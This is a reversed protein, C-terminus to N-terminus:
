VITWTETGPVEGYPSIVIANFSTSDEEDFHLISEDATKMVATNVSNIEQITVTGFQVFRTQLNFIALNLFAELHIEGYSAMILSHVTSYIGGKTSVTGGKNNEVYIVPSKSFYPEPHLRKKLAVTDASVFNDQEYVFVDIDKVEPTTPVNMINRTSM